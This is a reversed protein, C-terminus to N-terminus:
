VFMSIKPSGYRVCKHNIFHTDCFIFNAQTGPQGTQMALYLAMLYRIPELTYSCLLMIFLIFLITQRLLLGKCELAPLLITGM